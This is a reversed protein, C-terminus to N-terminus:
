GADPEPRWGPHPCRRRARGLARAGAELQGPPCLQVESGERERRSQSSAMSTSGDSQLSPLLAAAHLAQARHVCGGPNDSGDRQTVVVYPMALLVLTALLSRRSQISPMLAAPSSFTIVPASGLSSIPPMTSM